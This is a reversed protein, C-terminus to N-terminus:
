IYDVFSDQMISDISTKENSMSKTNKPKLLREIAKQKGSTKNSVVENIVDENESFHM